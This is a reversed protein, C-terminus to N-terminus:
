KVRRIKRSLNRFFIYLIPSIFLSIFGSTLLGFIIVVSLSRYFESGIALPATSVLTTLKTLFIPRFRVGSAYAIAKKPEWGEKIKQNAASILFIGVNEVLGVLIIIGIIELFGLQGGGLLSLAPFIGLFTLPISFLIVLPQLLSNFFIVLAFYTLVIALLFALGLESFSKTISASTGESYVEVMVDNPYNHRYNNNYETLVLQQIELVSSQDVFNNLPKANVLGINEGKVRQITGLSEVYNIDAIDSLKIQKGTLNTLVANRISNLDTPQSIVNNAIVVDLDIGNDTFTVIKKSSTNNFLGALLSKVKMPDVPNDKLKTRDLSVQIFNTSTDSYGNDIKAIVKDSNQCNSNLSLKLKDRCVTNLIKTLDLAISKEVSSDSTKIGLSIPFTITPVGVGEPFLSINFFDSGYKINLNNEIDSAIQKAKISRDTKAKLGIVFAASSRDSGVGGDGFPAVFEVNDNQLALNVINKYNAETKAITQQPLNTISINIRDADSAQSFQVFRVQKTSIFVGAVIIPILIALIIIVIRVLVPANLIRLNTKIMWKAVPWLNEKEDKADHSRKSRKLILGGIWALFILPVVYSGILAPLITLPIYSIIQGFIGSVVGFPVFVLVSTLVAMFLGGGIENVANIVADKGVLGNDLNRQISELVVLAPDIVLGIVLVLSFLVLTNLDNGTLKIIIISFFFSLPIALAAVLAARWSIVVLMALFVLEIGGLLFGAYGFISNGMKSGILGSVVDNVQASNADQISYIKILKLKSFLSQQVSPLNKFDASNSDFYKTIIKSLQPDFIGLNANKSVDISLLMTKNILNNSAEKYGAYAQVNGVIFYKESVDALNILKVPSTRNNLSSTIYLNQLDALTKGSLSLTINYSKNNLEGAQVAPIDLGWSQLQNTIDALSIYNTTLKNTDPTIVVKKTIPNAINLSNVDPNKEVEAKLIASSDYLNEISVSSDKATLAFYYADNSIKQDIVQPKDVGLPLSLTNMATSIKTKVSEANASEDITVAVISSNNISYSTYTKVGSINKIAAEIPKTIQDQVTKASAGNYLTQIRAIKIDPSPFGTTKLALVSGIGFMILAALLLVTFRPNNIFYKTLRTNFNM